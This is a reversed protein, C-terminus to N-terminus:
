RMGARDPSPESRDVLAPKHILFLDVVDILRNLVEEDQLEVDKGWSGCVCM